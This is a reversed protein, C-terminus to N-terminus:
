LRKKLDESVSHVVARLTELIGDGAITSAEFEPVGYRNLKSRLEGTPTRKEIDRKNYQMVHPVAALQLGYEELNEQLERLSDLNAEARSPRSDAVFVIGDTDRLLLKRTNLALAQGPGSCLHFTTSFGLIKGFRVPLVDIHLSSDAKTPLSVLRGRHNADLHEHIYKLNESKGSHGPGYYVIKSDIRRKKVDINPM